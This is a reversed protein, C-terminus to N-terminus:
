KAAINDITVTNSSNATLTITSQPTGDEDNYEIQYQSLSDDVCEGTGTTSTVSKSETSQNEALPTTADANWTAETDSTQNVWKIEHVSTPQKNQWSLTTGSSGFDCALFFGFGLTFIAFFLMKKM